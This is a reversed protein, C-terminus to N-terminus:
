PTDRWFTGSSRIRSEAAVLFNGATVVSDGEALGSVVEARDGSQAGIKV